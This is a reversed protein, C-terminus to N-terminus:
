KREKKRIEVTELYALYEITGEIRVNNRAKACESTHVYLVRLMPKLDILSQIQPLPTNGKVVMNRRVGMSPITEGIYIYNSM